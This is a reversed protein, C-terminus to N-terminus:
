KDLSELLDIEHFIEHRKIFNNKNYKCMSEFISKKHKIERKVNEDLRKLRNIEDITTKVGLSKGQRNSIENIAIILKKNEEELRKLREYQAVFESLIRFSYNDEQAMFKCIIVNIEDVGVQEKM